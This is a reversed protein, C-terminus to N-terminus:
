ESFSLFSGDWLTLTILSAPSNSNLSKRSSPKSVSCLISPSPIVRILIKGSDILCNSSQKPTHKLFSLGSKRDESVNNRRAKRLPTKRQQPYQELGFFSYRTSNCRCLEIM